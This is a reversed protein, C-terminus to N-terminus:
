FGLTTDYIDELYDHMKTLETPELIGSLPIDLADAALESCYFAVDDGSFEYDYKKGAQQLAWDGCAERKEPAYGKRRQLKAHDKKYLWEILDVVQVGKGIAEVVVLRGDKKAIIASHKWFGKIFNATFHLSERSSLLDGPEALKIFQEVHEFTMRSEPPAIKQMLKQIPTTLKFFLIKMNFLWSSM